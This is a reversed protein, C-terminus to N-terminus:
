AGPRTQPASNPNEAAKEAENEVLGLLMKLHVREIKLADTQGFSYGRDWEDADSKYRRKKAEELDNNTITLMAELHTKLTQLTEM